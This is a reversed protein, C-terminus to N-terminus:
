PEPCPIPGQGDIRAVPWLIPHVHNDLGVVDTVTLPVNGIYATSM